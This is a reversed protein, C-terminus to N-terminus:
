NSDAYYNILSGSLLINKENSTLDKMALDMKEIEMARVIYAKVTRCGDKIMTRISPIYILDGTDVDLDEEEISFPIMGWNIVNSRYRKTAYEVAINAWGGWFKKVPPLKNEQPDTM